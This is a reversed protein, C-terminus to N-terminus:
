AVDAYLDSPGTKAHSAGVIEPDGFFDLDSRLTPGDVWVPSDCGSHSERLDLVLRPGRWDNKEIWKKVAEPEKLFVEPPVGLGDSLLDIDPLSIGAGGHRKAFGTQRTKGLIQGLEDDTIRGVNCFTQLARRANEASRTVPERGEMVLSLALYQRFMCPRFM